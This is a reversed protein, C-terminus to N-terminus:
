DQGLASLHPHMGGLLYWVAQSGKARELNSDKLELRRFMGAWSPQKQLLQCSPNHGPLLCCSHCPRLWGPLSLVAVARETWVLAPEKFTADTLAWHPHCIDGQELFLCCLGTFTVFVVVALGSCLPASRRSYESSCRLLGLSGCVQEGLSLMSENHFRLILLHSWSVTHHRPPRMWWCILQENLLCYIDLFLPILTAGGCGWCCLYKSVTLGGEMPFILQPPQALKPHTMM